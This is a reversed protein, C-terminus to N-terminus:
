QASSAVPGVGEPDAAVDAEDAASSDSEDDSSSHEGSRVRARRKTPYVWNVWRCEGVAKLFPRPLAGGPLLRFGAFVVNVRAVTDKTEMNTVPLDGARRPSDAPYADGNPPEYWMPLFSGFADDDFSTYWRVTLEDDQISLVKGVRFVDWAPCRQQRKRKRQGPVAAPILIMDGVDCSVLCRRRKKTRACEERDDPLAHGFSSTDVVDDSWPRYPLLRNVHKKEAIGRGAHSIWYNVGNSCAKLVRHPGTFRNQFKGPLAFKGNNTEQEWLLVYDDPQFLVDKQRQNRYRLNAASQKEQQIRVRNYMDKLTDVVKKYYSDVDCEPVRSEFFMDIPLEPQRGYVMMYPSVGTTDHVSVRYAFLIAPLVYDWDTQRENGMMTLVANMYRHFREVHGNSHPTYGTTQIKKISLRDCLTTIITGTFSRERDSLITHPIGHVAILHEYLADAISRASKNYLPIALPWRTFTCLVTLIWKFGTKTVPLPGVLDIAVRRFPYGTHMSRFRGHRLPRSSKRRQCPLCSRIFRSIDRRMGRWWFRERMALYVRRVGLHGTLPMCHFQAICQTRVTNPVYRQLIWLPGDLDVDTAAGSDNPQGEQEEDSSADGDAEGTDGDDEAAAAKLRALLRDKQRWIRCVYGEKDVTWRGAVGALRAELREKIRICHRDAEQAALLDFVPCCLASSAKEPELTDPLPLRSLGDANGHRRGPRHEITHDVEALQVMWRRVVSGLSQLDQQKHLYKIAENDTVIRLPFASLLRYPATVELGWMIALLEQKYTSYSAEAARYTRSFYAVVREHKSDADVQTLCVGIGSDSADTYMNWPRDFDPHGLIPTSSLHEKLVQIAREEVPGIATSVNVGNRLLATLPSAITAFDRIYKRYYSFMGLMARLEKLNRPKRMRLIPAVKAPDPRIGKAGVLHGLYPVETTVFVCKKPKCVLGAQVLRGLVARLDKMHQRIDPSWIVLDDVYLCMCKWQLGSMVGSLFRNFVAMSNVYGMPLRRYQFFGDPTSVGFYKRSEAAIPIQFYAMVLDLVSFFAGGGMSALMTDVKPMPWTQKEVQKNLQRLGTCVRWGGSPKPIILIPSGYAGYPDAPEVIGKDTLSSMEEQCLGRVAPNFHRHMHFPKDDAMRVSHEFGKVASLASGDKWFAAKQEYLLLRLEREVDLVNGREVEDRPDTTSFSAWRDKDEQTFCFEKLVSRDDQFAATIVADSVEPALGAREDDVNSSTEAAPQAQTVPALHYDDVAALSVDLQTSERSGVDSISVAMRLVDSPVAYCTGIHMGDSIRTVPDEVLVNVHGVGGALDILSSGVICGRRAVTDIRYTTKPDPPTVGQAVRVRINNMGRQLSTPVGLDAYLAYAAVVHPSARMHFAVSARTVGKTKLIVRQTGFDLLCGARRCWTAGLLCPLAVQKLVFFRENVQYGGVSIPMDLFGIPSCLDGAAQTLIPGGDPLDSCPKIRVDSGMAEHLFQRSILSYQSGTDILVPRGYRRSGAVAHVFPMPARDRVHQLGRVSCSFTNSESRSEEYDGIGGGDDVPIHVDKTKSEAHLVKVCTDLADLVSTDTVPLTDSLLPDRGVVSAQIDLARMMSAADDTLQGSTAQNLKDTSSDLSVGTCLGSLDPLLELAVPCHDSGLVQDLVSCTAPQLLTRARQDMLFYDIRYGRDDRRDAESGFWTFRPRHTASNLFGFVDFLDSEHLFRQWACREAPTCNPWFRRHPNTRGDFVDDDGCTVNFDGALVIPRDYVHRVERVHGALADLFGCFKDTHRAFEGSTPVYVGMLIFSGFVVTLLRGQGDLERVGSSAEVKVPRFRCWVAVGQSGGNNVGSVDYYQFPYHSSLLGWLGKNKKLRDVRSRVETIVLVDADTRTLFDQLHGRRYVNRISNANWTVMRSGPVDSAMVTATLHPPAPVQMPTTPLLLEAATAAEGYRDLYMGNCSSSFDPGALDMGKLLWVFRSSHVREMREGARMFRVGKKLWIRTWEYHRFYNRHLVEAPVLVAFSRFQSVFRLVRTMHVMPPAGVICLRQFDSEAFHFTMFDIGPDHVIPLGHQLFFRGTEGTSFWPDCFMVDSGRSRREHLFPLVVEWVEPPVEYDDRPRVDFVKPRRPTDSPTFLFENIDNVSGKMDTASTPESGVQAVTDDVHM